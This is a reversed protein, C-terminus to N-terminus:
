ETYCTFISKWEIKPQLLTESYLESLLAWNNPKLSVTTYYVNCAASGAATSSFSLARKAPNEFCFNLSEPPSDSGSPSIISHFRNTKFIAPSIHLGNYAVTTQHHTIWLAIEQGSCAKQTLWLFSIVIWGQTQITSNPGSQFAVFHGPYYLKFSLNEYSKKLCQSSRM